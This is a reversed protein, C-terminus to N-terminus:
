TSKLPVKFFSQVSHNKWDAALGILIVTLHLRQGLFTFISVFAEKDLLNLLLADNQRFTLTVILGLSSISHVHSSLKLNHPIM